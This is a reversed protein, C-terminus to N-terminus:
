GWPLTKGQQWFGADNQAKLLSAPLSVWKSAYESGGELLPAAEFALSNYYFAYNDLESLKTPQNFIIYNMAKFAGKSNKSGTLALCYAGARNFCNEKVAWKTFCVSRSSGSMKVFLFARAKQICEDIGIFPLDLYSAMKVAQVNWGTVSFDTHAKKGKGYQYAWGGNENQGDIISQVAPGVYKLLKQDKTLLYAECLAQTRM